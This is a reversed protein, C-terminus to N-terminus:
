RLRLALCAPAIIDDVNPVKATVPVRSIGTWLPYRHQSNDTPRSAIHVEFAGVRPAKTENLRLQLQLEPKMTRLAEALAAHLRVAHHRYATTVPCYEIYLVPQRPDLQPAAEV